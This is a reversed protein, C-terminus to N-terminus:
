LSFKFCANEKINKGTNKSQVMSKRCIMVVQTYLNRGICSKKLRVSILQFKKHITQTIKSVNLFESSLTKIEGFYPENM